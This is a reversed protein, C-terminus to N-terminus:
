VRPTNENLRLRATTRPAPIPRRRKGVSFDALNRAVTSPKGFFARLGKVFPMVGWDESSQYDTGSGIRSCSTIGHETVGAIM